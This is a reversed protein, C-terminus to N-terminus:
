AKGLAKLVAQVVVDVDVDTNSQPATPASKRPKRAAKSHEAPADQVQTQKNTKSWTATFTDTDRDVTTVVWVYGSVDDLTVRAGAKVSTPMLELCTFSQGNKGVKGARYQVGAVRYNNRPIVPSPSEAKSTKGTEIADGIPPVTKPTNTRKGSTTKTTEIEDITGNALMTDVWAPLKGSNRYEERISTALWAIRERRSDGKLSTEMTYLDSIVSEVNELWDLRTENDMGKVNQLMYYNDKLIVVDDGTANPLQRFLEALLLGRNSLSAITLTVTNKMNSYGKRALTIVQHSIVDYLWILGRIYLYAMLLGLTRLFM